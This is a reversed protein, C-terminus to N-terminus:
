PVVYSCGIKQTAVVVDDYWIQGLNADYDNAGIKIYNFSPAWHTRGANNASFDTVHM